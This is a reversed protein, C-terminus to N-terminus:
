LVWSPRNLSRCEAVPATDRAPGRPIGGVTHRDGLDLQVVDFFAAAVRRGCGCRGGPVRVDLGHEFLDQEPKPKAVSHVRDFATAANADCIVDGM